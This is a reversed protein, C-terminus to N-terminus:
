VIRMWLVVVLGVVELEVLVLEVVGAVTVTMFIM